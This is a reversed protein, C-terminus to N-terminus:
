VVFGGPLAMSDWGTWCTPVYPGWYGVGRVAIFDPMHDVSVPGENGDSVRAQLIISGAAGAQEKALEVNRNLPNVLFAAMTAVAAQQFMSDWLDCNTIRATYVAIANQVNTLLVSVLNGDQDTDVAVAYPINVQPYNYSPIGGLGTMIPPSAANNQDPTAILYRWKLWDSPPAYSYLWPVPPIPLTTGDPNEATGQAAKLLTLSQQRRLCNWHASRSLADIKGQYLTSAVDGAQTGDSPNISTVKARAAIALLAQNVIDIPVTM